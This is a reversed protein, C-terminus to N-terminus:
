GILADSPYQVEELFLGRAPATQGLLSRDKEELIRRIQHSPFRGLGVQLLTGAIGRVMQKLFGEGKVELRLLTAGSLSRGGPAAPCKELHASFLERVTTLVSAKQGQFAVFDHSGVLDQAAREMAQFDLALEGRVLRAAVQPVWWAQGALFPVATPSLLFYYGYTKSLASKQAHFGQTVERVELVRIERPLLANLGNLLAFFDPMSAGAWNLHAVQGLAHVGADTRGSGWVHVRQGGMTEVASELHGQISAKGDVSEGLPSKSQKQWGCFKTGDYAVKLAIRTM